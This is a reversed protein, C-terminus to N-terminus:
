GTVPVDVFRPRYISVDRYVDRTPGATTDLSNVNYSVVLKNATTLSAHAHANYTYVDADGYSGYPGGEPTNYVTKEDTFPGAPSCSLYTDIQASFANKTDQTLLIYFNGRKSVSFENSVGGLVEVAASESASWTGGAALYSWTGRLDTGAVRAVYMHKGDAGLDETGYVYTYGGDRLLASGWMVGSGSPLSTVSTPRTLDSTSFRALVNADWTVNLDGSGVKYERYPQQIESGNMTMDGAWYVHSADRPPLLATPNAATGGHATGTLAGGASRVVFTNNVFPTTGGDAVTMPRSGDANVKGLFTDSFGFVTRGDPLKVSYTSDGGTWDDLLANGNGYSTFQTNLSTDPTATGFTPAASGGCTLAAARAAASPAVLATAALTSAVAARILLRM